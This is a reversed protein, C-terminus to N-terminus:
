QVLVASVQQWLGSSSGVPGTVRFTMAPNVGDSDVEVVANAPITLVAGDHFYAVELKHSATAETGSQSAREYASLGEFSVPVGSITTPAGAAQEGYVDGSGAAPIQISCTRPKIDGAAESVALRAENYADGVDSM